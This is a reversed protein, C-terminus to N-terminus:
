LRGYPDDPIRCRPFSKVFGQTIHQRIGSASVIPVHLLAAQAQAV